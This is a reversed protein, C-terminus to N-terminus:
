HVNRTVIFYWWTAQQTMKTYSLPRSM